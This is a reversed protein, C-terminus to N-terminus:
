VSVLARALPSGAAAAAGLWRQADATEGLALLARGYALLAAPDRPAIQLARGAAEHATAADGRRLAVEARLVAAPVNRPDLVVLGDLVRQALELKGASAAQSALWRAAELADDPVGLLSM